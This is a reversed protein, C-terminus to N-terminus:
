NAPGNGNTWPLQTPDDAPRPQSTACDGLAPACAYVVHITTDGDLPATPLFTTLANGYGATDAEHPEGPLPEDKAGSVMAYPPQAFLRLTVTTRGHALPTLAGTGDTIGIETVVDLALRSEQVFPSCQANVAVDPGTNVDGSAPACAPLTPATPTVDVAITLTSADAREVYHAPAFTARGNLADLSPPSAAADPPPAQAAIAAAVARLYTALATETAPAVLSKAAAVTRARAAGAIGAVATTAFAALAALLVLTQALM